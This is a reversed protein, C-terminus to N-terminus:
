GNAKDQVSRLDSVVAGGQERRDEIVVGPASIHVERIAGVLAPLLYEEVLSFAFGLRQSGQAKVLERVHKVVVNAVAEPSM